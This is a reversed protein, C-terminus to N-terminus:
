NEKISASEAQELRRLFDPQPRHGLATARSVAERAGAVNGQALLGVALFYHGAPHNPDLAVVRRCCEVLPAVEAMYLHAQGLNYPAEVLDDRRRLAERNAQAAAEFDWKLLLTGGLNVWAEVLDPDLALAERYEREARALLGRSTYALGLNFHAAASQPEQEVQELCRAIREAAPETNV